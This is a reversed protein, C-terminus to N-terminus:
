RTFGFAKLREVVNYNIKHLFAVVSEVIEHHERNNGGHGTQM